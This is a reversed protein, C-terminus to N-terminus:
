FDRTRNRAGGSRRLFLLGTVPDVWGWSSLQTTIQFFFYRSRDLCVSILTRPPRDRQGRSVGRDAFTPLLIQRGAVTSWVTYNAQPSFAVSNTEQKTQSNNPMQSLLTLSYVDHEGVPTQKSTGGPMIRSRVAWAVRSKPQLTLRLSFLGAVDSYHTRYLTDDSLACRHYTSTSTTPKHLITDEPINGHPEQLSRTESSIVAEMM